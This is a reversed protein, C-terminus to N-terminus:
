LYMRLVAWINLSHGFPLARLAIRLADKLAIASALVNTKSTGTKEVYGDLKAILSFPMRVAIQPKGM